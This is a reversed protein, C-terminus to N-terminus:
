NGNWMLRYYATAPVFGLDTFTDTVDFVGGPPVNTTLITAWDVVNTSRQVGYKYGPIGAFSVTASSGSVAIAGSQGSTFPTILLTVTGTASGGKNDAVTYTFQDNVLNANLYSVYGGAVTLTVGNTSTGVSTLTLPDGDADSANALLNTVAIQWSNVSGRAYTVNTAVPPHNVVLYLENTLITLATLAGASVGAGLINLSSSAVSGAVAGATNTSILKYVGGPLPTGIVSVTVPNNNLTLTGNTVTLTPVGNTYNLSVSGSSLTASGALIGTGGLGTLTQSAGLTFASSLGSVDFTAGAGIQINTTNALTASGTLALVGNSITTSGSHAAFGTIFLTRLGNMVISSPSLESISGLSLDASTQPTTNWGPTKPSFAVKGGTLTVTPFVVTSGSGNVNIGLEQGGGIKLSGMTVTSGVPGSLPDLVALGNGFIEVNNGLITSGGSINRLNLEAFNGNVTNNTLVGACVVVKGTGLPSFPGAGTAELEGKVSNSLILTGSFDSSAQGRLRLGNGSDPSVDNTVTQVLVTGSGHWTGTNTFAVEFPDSAGLNAPDAILLTSITSAAATLELKLPNQTAAVGLTGGALTVNNTINAVALVVTSNPNVTLTGTGAANTNGLRVTGANATLGSSFGSSGSLTLINNAAKTVSGGGNIVNAITVNDSRNFVLSGNDTVAGSGLSGSTGGAGVQLTGASITTAGYSNAGALVLTGSGSQTLTGGGTIVSSNTHTDTRNFVLAANDVVSQGDPLNGSADNSGVQLTGASIIIGGTFSNSGSNDLITTAAGKISLVNTNVISGTNTFVYNLVSNSMTMSIPALATTLNVTSNSASDDFITASGDTYTALAGAATWNSTTLDWNGNTAGTWVLPVIIVNPTISLDIRKAGSNDVLNGTYGVPITLTFNGAVTGNLTSYAILPFTQPGNLGTIKTIALTTTGSANVTGVVANTAISGSADLNLQITANTVNFNDIPIVPTGIKGQVYLTGSAVAVTGTSNASTTKLLNNTIIVTGGFINLAGTCNTGNANNALSVNGSVTMLGSTGLLSSTGVNVTGVSSAGNAGGSNSCFAINVTNVDVIGANFSFNGVAGVGAQTSGNTSVTLTGLKIDVQHDNLAVSGTTTGTGTANRNGVVMNARDSDTGGVGRMRLGGTSTFFRLSGNAKQQIVNHNGVNIINTGSGLAMDCNGGNSSGGAGQTITGATVNNSVAALFLVGASRSQNWGILMTGASANYVFNSLSSLDNTAISASSSGNNGINFTPANVMLTGGGTMVATTVLGNVAGIGGVTYTTSVTLTTGSPIQTVHFQGSTINTFQLATVTTNGQVVNNITTNNASTGVAGFVSTDASGPNGTSPSWNANVNWNNAAPTAVNWLYNAAAAQGALLLVAALVVHLLHIQKKM